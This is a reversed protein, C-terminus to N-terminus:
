YVPLAELVELTRSYIYILLETTQESSFRNDRWTVNRKKTKEKHEKL